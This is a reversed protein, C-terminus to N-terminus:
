YNYDFITKVGNIITIPQDPFTYVQREALSDTDQSSTIIPQYDFDSIKVMAQIPYTSAPTPLKISYFGDANVTVTKNIWEYNFSPDPNKELDYSDIAFTIVVNTPIGERIIQPTGDPLTDNRYNLNAKIYGEVTAEGTLVPADGEKKKCGTAIAIALGVVVFSLITKKM